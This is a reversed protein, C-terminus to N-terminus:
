LYADEEETSAAHRTFICVVGVSAGEISMNPGPAVQAGWINWVWNSSDIAGLAVISSVEGDNGIADFVGDCDTVTVAVADACTGVNSLPDKWSDLGAASATSAPKWQGEIPLLLDREVGRWVISDEHALEMALEM